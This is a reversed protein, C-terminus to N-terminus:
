SEYTSDREADLSIWIQISDVFVPYKTRSITPVEPEVARGGSPETISRRLNFGAGKRFGYEITKLSRHSPGLTGNDQDM